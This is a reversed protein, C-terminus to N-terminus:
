EFMPPLGMDKRVRNIEEAQRRTVGAKAWEQALELLDPSQGKSAAVRIKRGRRPPESKLDALSKMHLPTRKTGDSGM